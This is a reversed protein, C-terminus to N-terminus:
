LMELRFMISSRMLKWKISHQITRAIYRTHTRVPFLEFIISQIGNKLRFYLLLMKYISHFQNIEFTQNSVVIVDFHKSALDNFFVMRIRRSTDDEIDISLLKGSGNRFPNIKSKSKVKAVVKGTDGCRIKNLKLTEM